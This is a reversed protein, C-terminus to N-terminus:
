TSTCPSCRLDTLADADELGQAPFPREPPHPKRQAGPAARPLELETGSDLWVCLLRPSDGAGINMYLSPVHM